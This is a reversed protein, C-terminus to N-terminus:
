GILQRIWHAAARAEELSKCVVTASWDWKTDWDSRFTLPHDKRDYARGSPSLHEYKDCFRCKENHSPSCSVKILTSGEPVTLTVKSNHTVRAIETGMWFACERVSEHCGFDFVPPPDHWGGAPMAIGSFTERFGLYAQMYHRPKGGELVICTTM